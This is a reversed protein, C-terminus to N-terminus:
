DEALREELQQLLQDRKTDPTDDDQPGAGDEPSPTPADTSVSPGDPAEDETSESRSKDADEAADGETLGASALVTNLSDAAQTILNFNRENLVRGAKTEDADDGSFWFMEDPMERFAIDDPMESRFKNIHKTHLEMLLSFEEASLIGSSLKGTLVNTGGQIFDALLTDGFRRINGQPTHEKDKDKVSTTSTGQNMGWLVTSYEWLRGQRLHRVVVPQGGNGKVMEFGREEDGPMWVQYEYHTGNFVRKVRSTDSQLEDFGISWEDLWGADLRDFVAKSTPDTLMFETRTWLGGTAEPFRETVDRPLEARNIERLELPKGIMSLVDRSNHSNLVRIRRKNEVITKALWGPHTMDLGEDIIGYTNVIADVIGLKGDDSVKTEIVYASTQKYEREPHAEAAKTETPRKRARPKRKPKEEPEPEPTGLALVPPAEDMSVRMMTQTSNGVVGRWVFYLPEGFGRRVVSFVADVIRSQEIAHMRAIDPDRQQDVLETSGSQIKWVEYM